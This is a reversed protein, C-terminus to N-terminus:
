VLFCFIIHIQAVSTSICLLVVQDLIQASPNGVISLIDQLFAFWNMQLSKNNAFQWSLGVQFSYSKKGYLTTIERRAFNQDIKSFFNLLIKPFHEIRSYIWTEVLKAM